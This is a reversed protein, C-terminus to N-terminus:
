TTSMLRNACVPKLLFITLLIFSGHKKPTKCWCDDETILDKVMNENRHRPPATTYHNNSSCLGMWSLRFELETCTWVRDVTHRLYAITLIESFPRVCPEIPKTLWSYWLFLEDDDDFSEYTCWWLPYLFYLPGKYFCWLHGKFFTNQMAVKQFQM